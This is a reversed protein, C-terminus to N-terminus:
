GGVAPALFAVTTIVAAATAVVAGAVFALATRTKRRRLGGPKLARIYVFPRREFAESGVINHQSM